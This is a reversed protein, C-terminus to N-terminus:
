SYGGQNDLGPFGGFPLEANVGFHAECGNNGGLLKSCTALTGTYSCQASRYIWRCNATMIRNPLMFGELDLASVLEFEVFLANESIKREVFYVDDPFEMSTNANPMGDLYRALTRKRTFKAGLLDNNNLVLNTIVGQFNSVKATPRPLTGKGSFEYGSVEIPFPPYEVGRWFVSSSGNTLNCFRIVPNVTVGLATMDLEFLEAIDSHQLSTIDRIPVPM